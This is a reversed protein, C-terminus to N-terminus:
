APSGVRPFRVAGAVPPEPARLDPGARAPAVGHGPHRAAPRGDGPHLVIGRVVGRPRDPAADDRPASRLSVLPPHPRRAAERAPVPARSVSRGGALPPLLSAGHLDDRRSGPGGPVRLARYQVRRDRDRGALLQNGADPNAHAGEPTAGGRPWPSNTAGSASCSTSAGSAPGSS